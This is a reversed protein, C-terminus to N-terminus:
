LYSLHRLKKLVYRGYYILGIATTFAAVAGVLNWVGGEQLFAHCLLGCVVFSTLVTIAVFAIHFAKLSM